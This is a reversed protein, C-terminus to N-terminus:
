HASGAADVFAREWDPMVRDWAFRAVAYERCRRRLEPGTLELAGIIASAIHEPTVSRALLRPELRGLLEPSAGVPAAVVPTGSSLAEITAMGFGEHPAPPLVFLDAARYWLTLAEEAVRGVLRFRGGLGLHQALSQLRAALSGEGLLVLRMPVREVVHRFARLLTELGLEPELRRGSVLLTEDSRLGLAFRAAARGAGPSFVDTDVGGRTVVLRDAVDPHDAVVLSRSYESLVLVRRARLVAARELRGLLVTLAKGSVQAAGHSAGEARLRAERVPSAHYVLALPLTRWAAALGAAVTPQHAVLLDFPGGLARASRFSAIPDSATQPVINRPLRRLVALGDDISAAPTGASVPVLATVEHGSVALRRATEAAVRASGGRVDPFWHDAALLIRM